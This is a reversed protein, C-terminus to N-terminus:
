QTAPKIDRQLAPVTQFSWPLHLNASFDVTLLRHM